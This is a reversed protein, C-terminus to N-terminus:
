RSASRLQTRLEDITPRVDSPDLGLWNCAMALNNFVIMRRVEHKIHAGFGVAEDFAQDAIVSWKVDGVLYALQQLFLDGLRAVQEASPRSQASMGTLDTILRRSEAWQPDTALQEVHRRAQDATVDGDWVEVALGTVTECRYAIGM